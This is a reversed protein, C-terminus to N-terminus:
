LYHRAFEQFNTHYCLSNSQILSDIMYHSVLILRKVINERILWLQSRNARCSAREERLEICALGLLGLVRDM